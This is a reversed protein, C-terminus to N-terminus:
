FNRSLTRRLPRLGCDVVYNCDRPFIDVRFKYPKVAARFDHVLGKIWEPEKEFASGYIRINCQKDRKFINPLGLKGMNYYDYGFGLFFIRGDNVKKLINKAENLKTEDTVNHMTFINKTLESVVEFSCNEDGYEVLVNSSTDRPSQWGLPAIKGYVHIIRTHLFEFIKNRDSPSNDLLAVLRDFLFHELSRDYNFTIIKINNNELSNADCDRFLRGFLNSYWNHAPIKIKDGFESHSEEKLITVIISIKGVFDYKKKHNLFEDITVRIDQSKFDYVYEEATSILGVRESKSLMSRNLLNNFESLFYTCIKKRLGIGDSFNYPCSAGAGLILITPKNIM